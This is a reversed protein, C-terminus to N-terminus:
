DEPDVESDLTFALAARCLLCVAFSAFVGAAVLAGLRWGISNTQTDFILLAAAMFCGGSLLYHVGDRRTKNWKELTM